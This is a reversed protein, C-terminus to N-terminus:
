RLTDTSVGVQSRRSIGERLDTADSVLPVSEVVARRKPRVERGGHDRREEIDRGGHTTTEQGPGEARRWAVAPGAAKAEDGEQEGEEGYKEDPSRREGGKECAVRGEGDIEAVENQAVERDVEEAVYESLL